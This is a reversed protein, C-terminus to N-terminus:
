KAACCKEGVVKVKVVGEVGGSGGADISAGAGVWGSRFGGTLDKLSLPTDVNIEYDVFVEVGIGVGAKGRLFLKGGGDIGNADPCSINVSQGIGGSGGHETPPNEKNANRM